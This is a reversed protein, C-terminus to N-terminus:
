KIKVEANCWEKDYNVVPKSEFIIIAHDKVDEWDMNNQAWDEIEFPDNNFLKIAWEKALQVGDKNKTSYYNVYSDVILDVPISYTIGDSFTVQFYKYKLEM